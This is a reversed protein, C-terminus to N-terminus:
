LTSKAFAYTTAGEFNLAGCAGTEPRMLSAVSMGAVRVSYSIGREIAHALTGNVQGDEEEFDDVCIGLYSLPLLATTRAFFMSGAIFTDGPACIESVGM